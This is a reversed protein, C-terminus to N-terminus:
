FVVLCSLSNSSMRSVEAPIDWEVCDACFNLVVVFAERGDSRVYAFVREGDPDLLKFDGYVFVGAHKKRNALGRQWFRFVSMAERGYGPSGPAPSALQAEANISTYDANIRM